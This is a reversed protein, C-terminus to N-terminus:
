DRENDMKFSEMGTIFKFATDDIYGLAYAILVSSKLCMSVNELKPALYERLEKSM